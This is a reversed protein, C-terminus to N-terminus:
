NQAIKRINGVSDNSEAASIMVMSPFTFFIEPKGILASRM